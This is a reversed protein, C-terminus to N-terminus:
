SFNWVFLLQKICGDNRCAQYFIRDATKRGENSVNPNGVEGVYYDHVFSARLDKGVYPTGATSWLARSM